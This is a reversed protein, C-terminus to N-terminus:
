SKTAVAILDGVVGTLVLVRPRRIASRPCNMGHSELTTFVASTTYGTAPLAFGTTSIRMAARFRRGVVTEFRFKGGPRLVGAIQGYARQWDPVLHVAGLDFVTDFPAHDANHLALVDGLEIAVRPRQRLRRQAREVQRPDIDIAVVENAQFRDLTMEIDTGQGCGIVLTRGAPTSDVAELTAGVYGLLLRRRAPADGSTRPTRPDDDVGGAWHRPADRHLTPVTCTM